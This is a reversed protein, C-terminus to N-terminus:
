RRPTEATRELFGTLHRLETASVDSIALYTFDGSQWSLLNYGNRSLALGSAIATADRPQAFVDIKHKRRSYVAVAAARGGLQDIRGGLLPFEDPLVDRVPPSFPVRTAFWPRITHQDSSAIQVSQEGMLARAHANLVDRLTADLQDSQRTAGYLLLAGLCAAALHSAALAFRWRTRAKESAALGLRDRMRAEFGTPLAFTGSLRVRAKQAELARLEAACPICGNLHDAVASREEGQLEDDHFATLLDRVDHCDLRTM